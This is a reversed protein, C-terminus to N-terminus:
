GKSFSAFSTRPAVAAPDLSARVNALVRELEALSRYTVSKGEYSVTLTGSVYAAELAALQTQTFAM